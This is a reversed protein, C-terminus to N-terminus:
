SNKPLCCSFRESWPSFLINEPKFDGVNFEAYVGNENSHVKYGAVSTWPIYRKTSLKSLIVGKENAYVNCHAFRKGFPVFGRVSKDWIDERDYDESYDEGFALLYQRFEKNYRYGKLYPLFVASLLILVSYLYSDTQCFTAVALGLVLVMLLALKILNIKQTVELKM